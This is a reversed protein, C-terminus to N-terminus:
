ERRAASETAAGLKEVSLGAKELAQAIVRLQEQLTKATAEADARARREARLDRELRAVEAKADDARAAADKVKASAAAAEQKSREIGAVYAALEQKFNGYSKLIEAIKEDAADPRVETRPAPEAARGTGGAQLAKDREARLKANAVRLAALERSVETLQATTDASNSRGAAPAATAGSASSDRRGASETTAREDRSERTATTGARGERWSSRPEVAAEAAKAPAKESGAAKDAIAAKENAAERAPEEAAVAPRSALAADSSEGGATACGSLWLAGALTGGMIVPFTTRM